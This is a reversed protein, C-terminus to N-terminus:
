VGFDMGFQSDGDNFQADESGFQTVLPLEIFGIMEVGQPTPVIDFNNFVFRTISDLEQEFQISFTMNEGDLVSTGSDVGAVYNVVEVISDLTVNSNNKAIKSRIIVRFIDDSVQDSVVVGDSGFQMNDGGFQSTDAGFQPGDSTILESEYSRDVVVVNGIVDLEYSTANDIDYSSRIGNYVETLQDGMTPVINYWQVAKTQNKYQSYVRTNDVM